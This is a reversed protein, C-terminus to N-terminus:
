RRSPPRARRRRRRCTPRPLRGGCGSADVEGADLAVVADDCRDAGVRHEPAAVLEPEHAAGVQDDVELLHPAETGGLVVVGRLEAVARVREVLRDHAGGGREDALRERAGVEPLLVLGGDDGDVAGALADPGLESPDREAAAVRQQQEGALPEALLPLVAAVEQEDGLEVAGHGDAGALAEEHEGRGAGDDREGREPQQRDELAREERAHEHDDGADERGVFRRARDVYFTTSSM